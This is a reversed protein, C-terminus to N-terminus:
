GDRQEHGINRCPVRVNGDASCTTKQALVEICVLNKKFGSGLFVEEHDEDLLTVFGRSHTRPLSFRIGLCDIGPEPGNGRLMAACFQGHVRHFEPLGKRPRHAGAENVAERRQFIGLM